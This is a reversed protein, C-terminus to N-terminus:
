MYKTVVWFLFGLTLFFVGFSGILKLTHASPLRLFSRASRGLDKIKQLYWFAVYLVDDWSRVEFISLLEKKTEGENFQYQKLLNISPLNSHAHLALGIVTAFLVKPTEADFVESNQIRAVPDAIATKVQTEREIFEILGPLLASGGAVTINTVARGTKMEFYQKAENIKEVIVKLHSTLAESVKSAKGKGELGHLRKESEAKEADIGMEDMIVQTFFQGGRPIVISVNAIADEGFMGITTTRAGIDLIMHNEGLHTEPLLARGLSFLESGVFVPKIQADSFAAVYDDLDRKPVGVFTATRVATGESVQYDWYLDSLDYPVIKEADSEIFTKWENRHVSDPIILYHTFLKTEPLCLVARLIANESYLTTPKTEKLLAALRQAFIEKNVIQGNEVVGNELAVSGYAVVKGEETLKLVKISSDSVDVGIAETHRM